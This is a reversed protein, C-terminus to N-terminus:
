GGERTTIVCRFACDPTGRLPSLAFRRTVTGPGGLQDPAGRVTVYRATRDVADRWRFVTRGQDSRRPWSAQSFRNYRRELENFPERTWQWGFGLGQELVAGGPLPRATDEILRKWAPLRNALQEVREGEHSFWQNFDGEHHGQWPFVHKRAPDLGSGALDWGFAKEWEAESPLTVDHEDGMSLRLWAAFALAEYQSVGNVPLDAFPV